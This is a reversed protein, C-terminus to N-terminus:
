YSDTNYSAIGVRAYNTERFFVSFGRSVGDPTFYPDSYSFSYATQYDSTNVSLGVRKGTGFWNEQQVSLGVMFGSREAYGLSAQISGSPQEEVVYEVDMLDSSGPVNTTEVNVEKFFALRELRVKGQEIRANSASASEMQRMERRLVNDATKTNGRFQIRRVYVRESPDVFFTLKVTNDEPNREPIGEVKANTYGSNGLLTTIYESSTTMLHQSFTDGERLLILRRIADEDFVPDGA